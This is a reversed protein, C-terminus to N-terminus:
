IKRFSTCIGPAVQLQLAVVPVSARGESVKVSAWAATVNGSFSLFLWGTLNVRHRVGALIAPGALYYGNGFIGGTEELMNGRITNEPHAIVVGAGVRVPVKGKYMLRNVFLQNYGHSISFRSIERTTNKLYIKLHNMEAEWGKGNRTQGLRVSYYLPPKFSATEYRAWLFIREEGEQDVSLLMPPVYSIGPALELYFIRQPPEDRIGPLPGPFNLTMQLNDSIGEVPEPSNLPLPNIDGTGPPLDPPNEPRCFGPLVFVLLLFATVIGAPFLCFRHGPASWGPRQCSRSGPVCVLFRFFLNRM